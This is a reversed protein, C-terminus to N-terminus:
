LLIYYSVPLMLRMNCVVLMPIILVAGVEPTHDLLFVELFSLCEEFKDNKTSTPANLSIALLKSSFNILAAAFKHHFANLFFFHMYLSM